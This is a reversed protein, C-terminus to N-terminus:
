NPEVDEDVRKKVAQSQGGFFVFFFMHWVNRWVVQQTKELTQHLIEEARKMTERFRMEPSSLIM